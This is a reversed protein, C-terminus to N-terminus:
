LLSGRPVGCTVEGMDSDIGNINVLQKRNTVCSEFWSMSQIGIVRLKDCLISHDVTNFAKQLDLLVIGTYLGITTETKIHDILHILCSDTSYSSRFGSQFEFLLNNSILFKDLQKNVAKELEKSVISLISVPRYNEPKLRDNKKFLPKVKAMKLEDPLEGESISLNILFTVPVKLIPAADKLFRAPIGDLGTDKSINLSCLEKYVFEETVHKLYSKMDSNRRSTYTKIINSAARYLGTGSPLKEVLKAAITTFSNNFHNSKKKVMMATKGM